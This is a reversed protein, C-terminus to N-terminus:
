EGVKILKSYSTNGYIDKLVFIGYYNEGLDLNSNKLKIESLNGSYGMYTPSAEWEETYNGEEDLIKYSNNWIEYKNYDELRLLAGNIRENKSALIATSIIPNDNINTINFVVNNMFGDDTFDLDKAYLIGKVTRSENNNKRYYTLIYEYNDNDDGIKLMKNNIKAGLVKDELSVDDSSFIPMYYNPHEMDRKFIAFLGDAFTQLQEDTLNISFDFNSENVTIKNDSLDFSYGSPSQQMNNFTNIFNNYEVSYNLNEYVKLFKNKFQKKGKYPFYISIGHSSKNNSKNYKVASNIKKLLKNGGDTTYKSTKEVFDYLDVMDYLETSTGYQYLNSRVLAIERYNKQLDIKKIYDDLEKNLEDIYSLDIVSYTQVLENYPNIVEMQKDYADVFKKGFNLGDDTPLINNLFGLVNTSKAGYSVEESAILYESYDNFINALEITGNLCTRFLVAEMKNKSNFPSNKLAETMDKLTLNDGSIDDYIAGDIAGGHDYLILDYKDAKYNKYSYNLFNSLTKPDGLNLQEQSELKEFGSSKLIYLGNEDNSIFNHWQETGGTYLLINTKALDIKKPDISALESSVIRADSELNSGVLYIMITRKNNDPFILIISFMLIIVSLLSIITVKQKKNLIINNTYNTNNTNMENGCYPCYKITNNIKRGCKNCIM